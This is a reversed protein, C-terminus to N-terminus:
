LKFLENGCETASTPADHLPTVGDVSWRCIPGGSTSCDQNALICLGSEPDMRYAPVIVKEDANASQTAFASGGGIVLLAIPFILKKM